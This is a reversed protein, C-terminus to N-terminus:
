LIRTPQRNPWSILIQHRPTPKQPRMKEKWCWKCGLQVHIPGKHSQHQAVCLTDSVKQTLRLKPAWSFPLRITTARQSWDLRWCPRGAQRIKCTFHLGWKCLLMVNTTQLWYGNTTVDDHNAKPKEHRKSLQECLKEEYKRIDSGNLHISVNICM